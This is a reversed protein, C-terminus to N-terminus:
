SHGAQASATPASHSLFQVMDAVVKLQSRNKGTEKDKWNDMHLRGEVLVSRGKELYKVANEAVKGWATVNVYTTETQRHGSEDNWVRNLALNLDTLSAGTKTKRLEPDRTLNGMITVRNYTSMIVARFSTNMFDLPLKIKIYNFPKGCKCGTPSFALIAALKEPM